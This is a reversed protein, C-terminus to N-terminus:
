WSRSGRPAFADRPLGRCGREGRPGFPNRRM